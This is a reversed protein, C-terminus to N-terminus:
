RKKDHDKKRKLLVDVEKSKTAVLNEYRKEDEFGAKTYRIEYDGFLMWKKYSGDEDSSTERVQRVKTLRKFTISVGALPEGEQSKVVGTFVGRDPRTVEIKTKDSIVTKESYLVEGLYTVELNYVKGLVPKFYVKGNEDAQFTKNDIICTVGAIPKGEADVLQFFEASQVKSAFQAGLVLLLFITVRM